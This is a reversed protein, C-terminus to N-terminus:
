VCRWGSACRLFTPYVTLSFELDVTVGGGTRPGGTHTHIGEDLLPSGDLRQVFDDPLDPALLSDLITVHKRNPTLGNFFFRASAGM